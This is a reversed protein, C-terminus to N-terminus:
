PLTTEISQVNVPLVRVGRRLSVVRLKQLYNIWSNFTRVKRCAVSRRTISPNRDIAGAALSAPRRYPGQHLFVCVCVCVCVCVSFESCITGKKKWRGTDLDAVIDVRPIAYEFHGAMQMRRTMRRELSRRNRQVALLVNGFISDLVNCTIESERSSNSPHICPQDVTATDFALGGGSLM